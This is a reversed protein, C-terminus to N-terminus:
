SSTCFIMHISNPQQGHVVSHCAATFICTHVFTKESAVAACAHCSHQLRCNRVLARFWVPLGVCASGPYSDGLGVAVGCLLAVDSLGIIRKHEHCVRGSTWGLLGCLVPM